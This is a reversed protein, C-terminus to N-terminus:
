FSIKEGRRVKELVALVERETMAGVNPRTVAAARDLVANERTRAAALLVKTGVEAAANAAATRAAEGILEPLRTVEWARRVSVGAGLMRRFDPDSKVAEELSFGPYRARVEAEEATWRDRAAQVRARLAMAEVAADLAPLLARAFAPDSAGDEPTAPPDGAPPASKETPAAPALAGGDEADGSFYYLHLKTM